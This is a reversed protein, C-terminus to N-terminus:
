SDVPKVNIVKPRAEEVKPLTITLMGAKFDAVAQDAKVPRPIKVTRTFSGFKRERRIYNADQVNEEPRTEGKITLTEATISVDIDEPQIGLMPGAKVIIETDTEYIDVPLAQAGNVASLSGEIFRSVSDLMNNLSKKLPDLSDNNSM